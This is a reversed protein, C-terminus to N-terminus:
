NQAPFHDRLGVSFQLILTSDKANLKGDGSVEACQECFEANAKLVGVSSQLILTADKANIKGDHNADGLQYADANEESQYGCETCVGAEFKHGTAPVLESYAHRSDNRCTYRVLGETECSPAVVVTGDDYAHGLPKVYNDEYEKGCHCTYTTYGRQICTPKTVRGEGYAHGSPEVYDDVYTEGCQCVYTTYGQQTCTPPTVTQAYTHIHEEEAPLPASGKWVGELEMQSGERVYVSANNIVTGDIRTYSAEMLETTGDNQLSGYVWLEANNELRGSNQLLFDEYVCIRGNNTLVANQPITLVAGSAMLSVSGNKPIVTDGPLTLSDCIELYYMAYDGQKMLEAAYELDAADYIGFAIEQHERVVGSIQSQKGQQCRVSVSPKGSPNAAYSGSIHVAGGPSCKIQCNGISLRGGQEVTLSGKDLVSIGSNCVLRGGSEVLIAGETVTSFYGDLTLTVGDPITLTGKSKVRVNVGNPVVFSEDLTVKSNVSLSVTGKDIKNQWEETVTMNDLSATEEIEAAATPVALWGASLILGLLFVAMTKLIKM